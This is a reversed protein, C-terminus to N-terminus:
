EKKFLRSLLGKKPRRISFMSAIREALREEGRTILEEIFKGKDSVKEDFEKRAKLVDDDLTDYVMRNNGVHQHVDAFDDFGGFGKVFNEREDVSEFLKRALELQENFSLEQNEPTQPPGEVYINYVM